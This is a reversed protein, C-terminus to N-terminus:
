PQDFVRTNKIHVEKVTMVESPAPNPYATPLLQLSDSM